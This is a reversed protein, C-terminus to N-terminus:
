GDTSGPSSRITGSSATKPSSSGTTKMPSISCSRLFAAASCPPSRPSARPMSSAFITRAMFSSRRRKGSASTAARTLVQRVAGAKGVAHRQVGMRPVMARRDHLLQRIRRLRRRPQRSMQVRNTHGNIWNIMWGGYSAGLAGVRNSDLWSYNALAYDLGKMLDEFPKGGWDGSISDTFAQGFGTSGHFNVAIVAYGAGAFAQPNWRYHFHDEIAGQPGGHIVFAVPYKKGEEFGVPKLIWAQVKDGTAGTFHFEAPESVEPM